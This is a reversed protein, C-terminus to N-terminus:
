ASPADRSGSASAPPRSGGGQLAGINREILPEVSPARGMFREYLENPDASDGTELIYERFERGTGANLVGEERFRSFADAELVESWKYSYYAAAYGGAFLHSFACVFSDRAHEERATFRSRVRRALSVPDAAAAGTRDTHLALDLAGFSLQRMQANAGRFTEAARLRGLLDRPLEAGTEAHRAFLTLAEPELTWNEMIQSPLEVWDWLVNTGALAPVEVRSLCHHLLHGFEHFVTQVERHTFRADRGGSPPTLNGAVLALHPAFSGDPRPGGTTLSAMWAGGQKGERPFWDAYFSALHTGDSDTIDYFRVDPHWVQSNEVQTVTVGFLRAALEFLGAMVRDHSFYPRLEEEDFSLLQQRLKEAAWAVDWAELTGLGLEKEAFEALQANEEHWYPETRERLEEVFEAAARGSGVMSEQLRWDAFTDFGLLAAGESRLELIRSILPRNDHEGDAARSVYAEHLQRRLDRRDSYQLFPQLSPQQLTFLWGELGAAAATERAAAIASEPLGALADADTVHLRFAATADLVNEGFRNSLEALETFIEQMRVRGAEDLDAGRLRFQLMIKELRRRRVDDLREAGPGAAFDRLRQWLVQDTKLTNVFRSYHPLLEQYASRIAPTSVTRSLHSCIRMVRTVQEEAGDLAAVLTDWTHGDERDRIRALREEADALVAELAPLMHEAGIEAFPIRFTASLLPNDATETRNQM